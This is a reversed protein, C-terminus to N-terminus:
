NHDIMWMTIGFGTYYPDPGSLNPQYEYLDYQRFVLGINKSYRDVSRSKYGYSRADSVPINSLDDEQEVSFVDTYSKDSYTFEPSFPDYTFDWNKMDDDNSFNYGFPDYPDSPLYKNGKWTYGERIPSHLKIFRLNDEVVEVRDALPTVIYSGNATWDTTGAANRIYRYIRYAPRGENDEIKADVQHKVQYSHTEANQQFDVFVFSDLRYTIFKGVQMPLYDALPETVFDEKKDSCSFILLSTLAVLTLRCIALSRM